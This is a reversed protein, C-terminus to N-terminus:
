EAGGKSRQGKMSSEESYDVILNNRHSANAHPNWERKGDENDRKYNGRGRKAVASGAKRADQRARTGYTVLIYAM